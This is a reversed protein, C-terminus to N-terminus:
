QKGTQSLYHLYTYTLKCNCGNEETMAANPTGKPLNILPSSCLNGSHTAVEPLIHFFSLGSEGPDALLMTFDFLFIVVFAIFRDM